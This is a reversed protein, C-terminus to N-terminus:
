SLRIKKKKCFIGDSVSKCQSPFQCMEVKANQPRPISRSRTNSLGLPVKNLCENHVAKPYPLNDVILNEVDLNTIAAILAFLVLGTM